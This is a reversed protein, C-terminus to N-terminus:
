DEDGGNAKEININMERLAAFVKDRVSESVSEFLDQLETMTVRIGDEDRVKAYHHLAQGLLRAAQLHEGLRSSVRGLARSCDAGRKEDDHKNYIQLARGLEALAEEFQGAAESALGRQVHGEAEQEELDVTGLVSVKPANPCLELLIKEALFRLHGGLDHRSSSSGFVDRLYRLRVHPPPHTDAAISDGTQGLRYRLLIDCVVFFWEAASRQFVKFVPESGELGLELGLQDAAFETGWDEVRGNENPDRHPTGLVERAFRRGADRHEAGRSSTEMIVHGLEHGLVFQLGLSLIPRYLLEQQEALEYEPIIGPEPMRENWFAEALARAVEVTKEFSIGSDSNAAGSKWESESVANIRSCLMRSLERYFELLGINVGLEFLRHHHVRVACNFKATVIFAVRANESAFIRGDNPGLRTRATRILSGLANLVVERLEPDLRGEPPEEAM